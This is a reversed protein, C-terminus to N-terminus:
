FSLNNRSCAERYEDMASHYMTWAVDQDVSSDLNLMIFTLGQTLAKRRNENEHTMWLIEATRCRFIELEGELFVFSFNLNAVRVRGM